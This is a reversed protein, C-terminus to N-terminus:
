IKSVELKDSRVQRRPGHVVRDVVLVVKVVGQGPNFVWSLIRNGDRDSEKSKTKWAITSRGLNDVRGLLTNQSPM